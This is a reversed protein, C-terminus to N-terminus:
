GIPRDTTPNRNALARAREETQGRLIETATKKEGRAFLEALREFDLTSLDFLRKM